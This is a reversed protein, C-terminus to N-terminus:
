GKCDIRHGAAPRLARVFGAEIRELRRSESRSRQKIARITRKAEEGAEISAAVADRLEPTPALSGLAALASAREKGAAELAGLEQLEAASLVLHTTQELTM